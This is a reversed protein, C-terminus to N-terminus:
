FKIVDTRSVSNDITNYVTIKAFNQYIEFIAYKDRTMAADYNYLDNYKRLAYDKNHEHGSLFLKINYKKCLNEIKGLGTEPLIPAELDQSIGFHSCLVIHKASQEKAKIISKEVFSVTEDTLIGYSKYSVGLDKVAPYGGYKAFFSIFGTKEGNKNETFWLHQKLFRTDPSTDHNGWMEYHPIKGKMRGNIPNVGDCITLKKVEELYVDYDAKYSAAYGDDINDGLQLVFDLRTKNHIKELNEFIGYLWNYDKWGYRRGIHADSLVAFRCCIEGLDFESLEAESEVTKLAPNRYPKQQEIIVGNYVLKKVTADKDDALAKISANPIILENPTHKEIEDYRIGWKSFCFLLTAIKQRSSSTDIPAKSQWKVTIGTTTFFGVGNYAGGHENTEADVSLSINNIPLNGFYYLIENVNQLKFEGSSAITNELFVDVVYRRFHCRKDKNDEPVGRFHSELIYMPKQM